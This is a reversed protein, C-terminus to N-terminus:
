LYKIANDADDKTNITYILNYEGYDIKFVHVIVLGGKNIRTFFGEFIKLHRLKNKTSTDLKSKANLL